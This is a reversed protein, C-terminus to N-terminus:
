ESTADKQSQLVNGKSCFFYDWAMEKLVLHM